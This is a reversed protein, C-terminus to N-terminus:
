WSLIVAADLRQGLAALTIPVLVPGNLDFPFAM